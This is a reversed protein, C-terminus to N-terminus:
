NMKVHNTLKDMEDDNIPNGELNLETLHILNYFEKPIKSIQNYSLDLNELKTLNDIENPLADINNTSLDLAKLNKLKLIQKPFKKLNNFDLRLSELKTLSGIEDLIDDTIEDNFANIDLSKLNKYTSIVNKPLDTPSCEKFKPNISTLILEDIQNIDTLLENHNCNSVKLTQLNPLKRIDKINTDSLNIYNLSLKKLKSLDKIVNDNLEGREYCTSRTEEGYKTYILELEELNILKNTETPFQIKLKNDNIITISLKKVSTHSFVKNIYENMKDISRPNYISFNLSYLAGNKDNECYIVGDDYNEKKYSRIESCDDRKALSLSLLTAFSLVKFIFKFQM